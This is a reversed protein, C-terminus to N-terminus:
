EMKLLSDWGLGEHTVPIRPLPTTGWRIPLDDAGFLFFVASFFVRPAGCPGVILGFGKNKFIVMQHTPITQKQQDDHLGQFIPFHLAFPVGFDHTPPHNM